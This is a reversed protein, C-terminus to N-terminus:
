GKSGYLILWDPRSSVAARRAANGLPDLSSSATAPPDGGRCNFTTPFNRPPDRPADTVPRDVTHQEYPCAPGDTNEVVNFLFYPAQYASAVDNLFPGLYRLVLDLDSLQKHDLRTITGVDALVRDIEAERDKLLALIERDLPQAADLTKILDARRAALTQAVDSLSGIGSVFDERTRVFADQVTRASSLGTRIEAQHAAGIASLTDLALLLQKLDQGHGRLGSGLEHIVTGLDRPNVSRLVADLERLLDETQIPITTLDRPIVDRDRLRPGGNDAPVLDIFQEGVASKYLVQARTGSRPISFKSQIIMEIRVADKTLEMSGVRGVQVGRYTVEQNTFVGGAEPFIGYVRYTSSVVTPLIQLALWFVFVGALVMFGVTNVLVRSTLRM